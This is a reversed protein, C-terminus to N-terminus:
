NVFSDDFGLSFNRGQKPLDERGTLYVYVCVCVCVCVCVEDLQQNENM